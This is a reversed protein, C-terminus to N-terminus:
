QQPFASPLFENDPLLSASTDLLHLMDNGTIEDVTRSLVLWRNGGTVTVVPSLHRPEPMSVTSLYLDMLIVGTPKAIRQKTPGLLEITSSRGQADVFTRFIQSITATRRSTILGCIPPYTLQM